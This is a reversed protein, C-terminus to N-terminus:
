EGQRLQENMQKLRHQRIRELANSHWIFTLILGTSVLVLYWMDRLSWFPSLESMQDERSILLFIIVLLGVSAVATWRCPIFIAMLLIPLVMFTLFLPAKGSFFPLYIFIATVPLILGVTAVTTYGARNLIYMAACIALLGMAAQVSPDSIDGPDARLVLAIILLVLAVLVLLVASLLRARQVKEPDKIRASPNLLWDRSTQSPPKV